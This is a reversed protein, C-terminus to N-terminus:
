QTNCVDQVLGKSVARHPEVVMVQAKLNVAAGDEM